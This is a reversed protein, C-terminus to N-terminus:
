HIARETYLLQRLVAAVDRDQVLRRDQDPRAVPRRTCSVHLSAGRLVRVRTRCAHNVARAGPPSDPRGAGTVGCHGWRDGLGRQDADGGPLRPRAAARGAHPWGRGACPWPWCGPSAPLPTTSAQLPARMPTLHGRSLVAATLPAVTIALGLGFVVVAPLVAGLYTAGPVVRAMLTLGAAAIMPGMTMPMRPGTRQAVAGAMPSGFLMIITTIPLSAVGAALASYHLSQQLQLALLFFAGGISTYCPAPDDSQRRHVSPVRLLELPVLPSRARREIMPFAILAAAGLVAAIVSRGADVWSRTGRDACLEGRRPRRHCRRDRRHRLRPLAPDRSETCMVPWSGRWRWLSRFM